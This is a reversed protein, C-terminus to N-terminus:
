MVENQNLKQFDFEKNSYKFSERKKGKLYNLKTSVLFSCANPPFRVHTLFFAYTFKTASVKRPFKTLLNYAFQNLTKKKEM